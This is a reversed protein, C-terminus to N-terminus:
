TMAKQCEVGIWLSGLPPPPGTSVWRGVRHDELSDSESSILWETVQVDGVGTPPWGAGIEVGLQARAGYDKDGSWM